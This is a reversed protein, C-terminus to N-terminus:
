GAKWDRRVTTMSRWAAQPRRGIASFQRCGTSFANLPPDRGYRGATGGALYSARHQWRSVFLRFGARWLWHPQHAGLYFVPGSV